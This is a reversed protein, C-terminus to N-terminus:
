MWDRFRRGEAKGRWEGGFRKAGSKGRDGSGGPRIHHIDAMLRPPRLNDVFISSAADLLLRPSPTTVGFAHLSHRFFLTLTQWQWLRGNRTRSASKRERKLAIALDGTSSTGSLAADFTHVLEGNALRFFM